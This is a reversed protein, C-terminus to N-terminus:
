RFGPKSKEGREHCYDLIHREAELSENLILNKHCPEAFM